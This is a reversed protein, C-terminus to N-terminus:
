FFVNKFEYKAHLTDPAAMIEGEILERLKKYPAIEQPEKVCELRVNAGEKSFKVLVASEKDQDVLAFALAPIRRRSKMYWRQVKPWCRAVIARICGLKVLDAPELKVLLEHLDNPRLCGLPIKYHDHLDRFAKAHLGDLFDSRLDKLQAEKFLLVVRLQRFDKEEIQRGVIESFYVQTYPEFWDHFGTASVAFYRKASKLVERLNALDAPEVQIDTERYLLYVGVLFYTVIVGGFFGIRQPSLIYGAWNEVPKTDRIREIVIEVILGVVIPIALHLVLHRSILKRLIRYIM